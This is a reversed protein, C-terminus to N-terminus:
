AAGEDPEGMPRPGGRRSREALIRSYIEGRFIPVDRPAQIGIRVSGSKAQRIV